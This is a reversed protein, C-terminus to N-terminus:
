TQLFRLKTFINKKSGVKSLYSSYVKLIFTLNPVRLLKESIM